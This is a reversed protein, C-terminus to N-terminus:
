KFMKGKGLLLWEASINFDNCLHTLADIDISRYRHAKEEKRREPNRLEMRIKSYKNRQLGHENCFTQLGNTKGNEIIVDLADFFRRHIADITPNINNPM